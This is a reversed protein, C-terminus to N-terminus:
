RLTPLAFLWGQILSRVDTAFPYPESVVNLTEGFGADLRPPFLISGDIPAIGFLGGTISFIAPPNSPSTFGNSTFRIRIPFPSDGGAILGGAILGGVMIPDSSISLTFDGIRIGISCCPAAATSPNNSGGQSAVTLTGGSSNGSITAFDFTNAQSL